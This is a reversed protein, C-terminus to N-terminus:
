KPITKWMAHDGIEVISDAWKSTCIHEPNCGLLYGSAQHIRKLSQWVPNNKFRDETRCKSCMGDDLEKARFVYSCGSCRLLSEPTITSRDMTRDKEGVWQAPNFGRM